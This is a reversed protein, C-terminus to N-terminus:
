SMRSKMFFYLRESRDGCRNHAHRSNLVTLAEPTSEICRPGEDRANFMGVRLELPM